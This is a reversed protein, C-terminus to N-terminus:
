RNVETSSQERSSIPRWGIWRVVDPVVSIPRLRRGAVFTLPHPGQVRLTLAAIGRTRVM